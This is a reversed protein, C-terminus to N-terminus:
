SLQVHLQVNLPSHAKSLLACKFSTHIHRRPSPYFLSGQYLFQTPRSHSSPRPSYSTALLHLCKSAPLCPLTKQPGSGAPLGVTGRACPALATPTLSAFSILPFASVATAMLLPGCSPCRSCLAPGGSLARRRGRRPPLGFCLLQIHVYRPNVASSVQGQRLAGSCGYGLLCQYFM